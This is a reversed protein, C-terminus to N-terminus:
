RSRRDRYRRLGGPSARLSGHLFGGEAVAVKPGEVDGRVRGSPALEFQGSVVIDGEVAGEVVVAEAHIPGRVHGGPVIRVLSECDIAGEHRGAVIIVDDSALRGELTM